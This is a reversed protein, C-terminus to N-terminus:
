VFVFSNKKQIIKKKFLLYYSGKQRKSVNRLGLIDKRAPCMACRGPSYMGNDDDGYWKEKNLLVLSRQIFHYAMIIIMRNPGPGRCVYWVMAASATIQAKFIYNSCSFNVHINVVVIIIVVISPQWRHCPCFSCIHGFCAPVTCCVHAGFEIVAHMTCESLSQSVRSPLPQAVSSRAWIAFFSAANMFSVALSLTQHPSM